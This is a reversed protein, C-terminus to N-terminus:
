RGMGRLHPIGKDKLKFVHGTQSGGPMKLRGEGYLTPVAVEAGLAAQAFNVPLEYIINDGQRTFFRHKRVAVVVYLNGPTAGRFGADGEGTPRIGNGDDIGAPVKVLVGRQMWCFSSPSRKM